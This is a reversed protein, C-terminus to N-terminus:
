NIIYMGSAMAEPILKGKNIDEEPIYMPMLLAKRKDGWYVAPKDHAKVYVNGDTAIAFMRLYDALFWADGVKYVVQKTYRGTMGNLKMYTNCKKIYENLEQLDVHHLTWEDTQPPIVKQWEPFRGEIHKGYKDVPMCRGFSQFEGSVKSEDYCDADAVLIHANTAVAMKNEIDHFVGNMVPRLPDNAIWDWINFANKKKPENDIMFEHILGMIYEVTNENVQEKCKASDHVWGLYKYAELLKKTNM